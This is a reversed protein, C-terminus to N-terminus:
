QSGGSDLQLTSSVMHSLWRCLQLLMTGGSLQNTRRRRTVIVVDEAFLVVGEEVAVVDEELGRYRPVSVM